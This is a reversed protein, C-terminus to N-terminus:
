KIKLDAIFRSATLTKREGGPTLDASGPNFHIEQIKFQMRSLDPQTALRAEMPVVSPDSPLREAPAMAVAQQISGGSRAAPLNAPIVEPKRAPPRAPKEVKAALKEPKRPPTAEKAIRTAQPKASPQTAPPHSAEMAPAPHAPPPAIAEQTVEPESVEPESSEDPPISEGGATPEEGTIGAIVDQEPNTGSDEPPTIRPAAEQNDAPPNSAAQDQAPRNTPTQNETISDQPAGSDSKQEPEGDCAALAFALALSILCAKRQKRWSNMTPGM